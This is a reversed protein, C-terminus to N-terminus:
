TWTVRFTAGPAVVETLTVQGRRGLVELGGELVGVWYTPCGQVENIHVRAEHDSLLHTQARTFNDSTSIAGGLRPFARVPGVLKLLAAAAAGLTTRKWGRIFHLGLLRLAEDESEAPWTFVAVRRLYPSWEAVPMSSPLQTVDLGHGKLHAKLENTALPGLGRM